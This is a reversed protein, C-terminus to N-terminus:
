FDIQLGNRSRKTVRVANRADQFSDRLRKSRTQPAGAFRKSLEQGSKARGSRGWIPKPADNPRGFATGLADPRTGSAAMPAWFPGLDIKRQNPPDSQTPNEHIKSRNKTSKRELRTRRLCSLLIEFLLRTTRPALRPEQTPCDSRVARVDKSIVKSRQTNLKEQQTGM